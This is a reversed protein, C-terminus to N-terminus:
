ARLYADFGAMLQIQRVISQDHKLVSREFVVVALSCSGHSTGLAGAVLSPASWFRPTRCRVIRSLAAPDEPYSRQIGSDSCAAPPPLNSCCV